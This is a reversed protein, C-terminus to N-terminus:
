LYMYRGDVQEGIETLHVLYIDTGSLQRRDTVHTQSQQCWDCGIDNWWVKNIDFVCHGDRMSAVLWIDLWVKDDRGHM